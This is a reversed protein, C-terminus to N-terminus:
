SADGTAKAIVQRAWKVNHQREPDGLKNRTMYDVTDEVFSNLCALLDPATAVLNANAERMDIPVELDDMRAISLGGDSYSSMVYKRGASLHWPGPTHKSM